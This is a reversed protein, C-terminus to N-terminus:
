VEKKVIAMVKNFVRDMVKIEEATLANVIEDNLKNMHEFLGAAFVEGRRSTKIVNRRKDNSDQSVTVYGNKELWTITRNISSKDRNLEDAIHQQSVEGEIYIIMLPAIQEFQIDFGEEQMLMNGKKHLEKHLMSLKFMFHNEIQKKLNM